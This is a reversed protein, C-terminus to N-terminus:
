GGQTGVEDNIFLTIITDVVCFQQSFCVHRWLGNLIPDMYGLDM